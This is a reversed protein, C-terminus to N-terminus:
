RPFFYIAWNVFNKVCTTHEVSDNNKLYLFIELFDKWNRIKRWQETCINRYCSPERQFILRFVKQFWLCTRFEIWLNIMSSRIRCLNNTLLDLLFCLLHLIIELKVFPTVKKERIVVLYEKPFDWLTVERKPGEIFPRRKDRLKALFLIYRSVRNFASSVWKNQFNGPHERNERTPILHHVSITFMYSTYSITWRILGHAKGNVFPREKGKLKALFLIYKPM